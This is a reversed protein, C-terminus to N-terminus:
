GGLEGVWGGVWVWLDVHHAVPLVHRVANGALELGGLAGVREGIGELGLHVLDDKGGARFTLSEAACGFGVWGGVVEEEVCCFLGTVRM